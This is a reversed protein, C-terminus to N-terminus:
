IALPQQKEIKQEKLEDGDVVIYASGDKKNERFQQKTRDSPTLRLTYVKGEVLEKPYGSGGSSLPRVEISRAKLDGKLAEIVEFADVAPMGWSNGIQICLGRTRCYRARFVFVDKERKVQDSVILSNAPEKEMTTPLDM